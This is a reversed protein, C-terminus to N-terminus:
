IRLLSNLGNQIGRLMAQVNDSTHLKLVINSGEQDVVVFEIKRDNLVINMKSEDCGFETLTGLVNDTIDYYEPIELLFKSENGNLLPVSYMGKILKDGLEIEQLRTM